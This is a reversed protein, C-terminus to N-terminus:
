KIRYFIACLELSIVLLMAGEFTMGDGGQLTRATADM